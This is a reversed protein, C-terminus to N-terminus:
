RGGLVEELSSIGPGQDTTRVVLAARPGEELLFECRGKGAYRVANRCIESAATAIRSQDQAGFGLLAALQRARQRAVVVDREAGLELTTLPLLVRKM